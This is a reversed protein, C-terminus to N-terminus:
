NKIFRKTTIHESSYIRLTYLGNPYNGVHISNPGRKLTGHQIRRGQLDIVEYMYFRDNTVEFFLDSETPNPYMQFSYDSAQEVNLIDYIACLSIRSYLTGDSLKTQQGIYDGQQNFHYSQTLTLSSDYDWVMRKEELNSYTYSEAGKFILQDSFRAISDMQLNEYYTYSSDILNWNMDYNVHAISNGSSDRYVKYPQYIVSQYISNGDADYVESAIKNWGGNNEYVVLSDMIGNTRYYVRKEHFMFNYGDWYKVSDIGYSNNYTITASQLFYQAANMDWSYFSQSDLNNDTYYRSYGDPTWNMSDLSSFEDRKYGNPFYSYLYQNYYTNGSFDFSTYEEALNTDSYISTQYFWHVLSGNSLTREACWKLTTDQWTTYSSYESNSPTPAQAIVNFHLGVLFLIPLFRTM